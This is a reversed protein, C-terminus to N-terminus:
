DFWHFWADFVTFPCRGLNTDIELKPDIKQSLVEPPLVDIKNSRLMDTLERALAGWEANGDTLFHGQSPLTGSSEGLNGPSTICAMPALRCLLLDLGIVGDSYPSDKLVRARFLPDRLTVFVAIFSAWGSGYSDSEINEVVIGPHDKIEEVVKLLLTDIESSSGSGSWDGQEEHKVAGRIAGPDLALARIRNSFSDMIESAGESPLSALMDKASGETRDGGFNSPKM